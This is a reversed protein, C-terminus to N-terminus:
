VCTSSLERKGWTFYRITHPLYHFHRERMRMLRLGKIKKRRKIERHSESYVERLYKDKKQQQKIYLNNVLVM